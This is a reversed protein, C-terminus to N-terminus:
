LMGMERPYSYIANPEANTKDGGGGGINVYLQAFKHFLCQQFM